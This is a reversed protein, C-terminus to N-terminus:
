MSLHVGRYLISSSPDPQLFRRPGTRGRPPSAQPSSTEVRLVAVLGRALLPQAAEVGLRSRRGEQLVSAM